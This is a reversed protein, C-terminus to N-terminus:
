QDADEDRGLRGARYDALDTVPRTTPHADSFPGVPAARITCRPDTSDAWVVYVLQDPAGGGDASPPVLFTKVRVHGERAVRHLAARWRDLPITLEDVRCRHLLGLKQAAYDPPPDTRVAFVLQRPPDGPDLLNLPVLFTRVRVGDCHGAHRMAARWAAVPVDLETVLRSAVGTRRFETVDRIMALAPAGARLNGDTFEAVDGTVEARTMQATNGGLTRSPRAVAAAACTPNGKQSQLGTIGPDCPDHGVVVGNAKGSSPLGDTLGCTWQGFDHVSSRSVTSPRSAPASREHFSRSSGRLSM